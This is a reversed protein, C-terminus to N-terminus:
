ASPDPASTLARRHRRVRRRISWALPVARVYRATFSALRVSRQLLRGLRPNLSQVRRIVPQGSLDESRTWIRAWVARREVPGALLAYIWRNTRGSTPYVKSRNEKRCALLYGALATDVYPDEVGFGGSWRLAHELAPELVDSLRHHRARHRALDIDEPSCSALADRLLLLDRVRGRRPVHVVIQHALVHWLHDAPGLRWLGPMGPIERIRRWSGSEQGWMEGDLAYHVEIALEGAPRVQRLHDGGAYGPRHDERALLWAQIEEADEVPLLIDVDNLDLGDPGLAPLGGKLVVPRAGSEAAWTALSELQRRASSIRGREWAAERGLVARVPESLLDECGTRRLAGELPHACRETRLFLEWGEGSALPAREVHRRAEDEDLRPLLALALRRVAYADCVM